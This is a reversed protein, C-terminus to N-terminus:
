VAAIDIFRNRVAREYTNPRCMFPYYFPFEHQTPRHNSKCDGKSEATGREWWHMRVRYVLGDCAREALHLAPELCSAWVPATVASANASM